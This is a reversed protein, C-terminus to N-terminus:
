YFNFKLKGLITLVLKIKAQPVTAFWPAADNITVALDDHRRWKKWHRRADDDNLIWFSTPCRRWQWLDRILWIKRFIVSCRKIFFDSSCGNPINYYCWSPQSLPWKLPMRYYRRGKTRVVYGVRSSKAGYDKAIKSKKHCKERLSVRKCATVLCVLIHYYFAAKIAATWFSQCM